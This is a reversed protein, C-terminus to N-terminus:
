DRLRAKECLNHVSSNKPVVDRRCAKSCADVFRDVVKRRKRGFRRRYEFIKSLIEAPRRRIGADNSRAVTEISYSLAAVEQVTGSLPRAHNERFMQKGGRCFSGCVIIMKQSIVVFSREESRLHHPVFKLELLQAAEQLQRYVIEFGM